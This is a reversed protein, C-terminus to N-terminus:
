GKVLEDRCQPALSEAGSLDFKQRVAKEAPRLREPLLDAFAIQRQRQLLELVQGVIRVPAALKLAHQQRLQLLCLLQQNAEHGLTRVLPQGATGKARLGM